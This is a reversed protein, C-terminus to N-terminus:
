RSCYSQGRVMMVEAVERGVAIRRANREKVSYKTAGAEVRRAEKEDVEYEVAGSYEDWIYQIVAMACKHWLPDNREPLINWRLNAAWVDLEKKPEAEEQFVQQVDSVMSGLLDQWTLSHTKKAAQRVLSEFKHDVRSAESNADYNQEAQGHPSAGRHQQGRPM